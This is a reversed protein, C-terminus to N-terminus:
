VALVQCFTAIRGIRVCQAQGYKLLIFPLGGQLYLHEPLSVASACKDALTKLSADNKLHCVNGAYIMCVPNEVLETKIQTRFPRTKYSRQKDNFSSKNHVL